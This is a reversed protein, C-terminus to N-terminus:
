VVVDSGSGGASTNIDAGDDDESERDNDGADPEGDEDECELEVDLGDDGGVDANLSPLNLVSVVAHHEADYGHQSQHQDHPRTAHLNKLDLPTDVDNASTPISPSPSPKPVAIKTLSPAPTPISISSTGKSPAKGGGNHGGTGAGIVAGAGVTGGIGVGENAGSRADDSAHTGAGAGVFSWSGQLVGVSQDAFHKFLGSSFDLGGFPCGPCQLHLTDAM